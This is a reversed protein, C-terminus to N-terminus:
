EEEEGWDENWDNSWEDDFGDGLEAALRREEMMMEFRKRASLQNEGNTKQRAVEEVSRVIEDANFMSTDTYMEEDYDFDDTSSM